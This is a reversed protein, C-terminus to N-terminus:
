KKVPVKKLSYAFSDTNPIDAYKIENFDAKYYWRYDTCPTKGCQDYHRQSLFAICQPSMIRTHGPDGWAWKSDPKPSSFLFHGGDKLIRHFETFQDFFFRWDGQKGTHELVEYAHIQDFQSAEFPMSVNNLDHVVDPNCNPDMDLRVLESGSNENWDNFDPGFMPKQRNGCGLLLIKM